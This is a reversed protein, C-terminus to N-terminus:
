LRGAAQGLAVSKFFAAVAPAVHALAAATDTGAYHQLAHVNFLAWNHWAKAWMPAAQTAIGLSGKVAAIVAEDLAQM